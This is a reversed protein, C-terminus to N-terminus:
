EIAYFIITASIVRSVTKTVSVNNDDAKGKDKASM